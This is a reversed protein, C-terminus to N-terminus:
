CAIIDPNIMSQSYNIEVEVVSKATNILDGNDTMLTYKENYKVWNCKQWLTNHVFLCHKIDSLIENTKIRASRKSNSEDGDLHITSTITYTATNTLINQGLGWEENVEDQDDSSPEIVHNIYTGDINGSEALATDEIWVSGSKTYYTYGGSQMTGDITMLADGLANELLTLRDM